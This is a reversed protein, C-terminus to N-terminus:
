TSKSILYNAVLEHLPYNCPVSTMGFQGSPNVELFYYNGDKAKIMDISGTNLGLERMMKDLKVEIIKPLNYPEYRNPNQNDYNRFDDITKPNSQSFIVMSFFDGDLYFIRLEYIKDIYKQFISPSFKNDVVEISNIRKTYFSFIEGGFEIKKGEGLSKSLISNDNTELFISLVKKSSTILTEPIKLKNKDAIELVKLKTPMNIKNFLWEKEKLLDFIINKLVNFESYLYKVLDSNKGFEDEYTKLFGFKRFWVIKIDKFFITKDNQKIYSKSIQKVNYFFEVEGNIIDEDNLRFFNANKFKLWDIVAQTDGEFPTSLILIM